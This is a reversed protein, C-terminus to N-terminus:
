QPSTHCFFFSITKGETQHFAENDTGIAATIAVHVSGEFCNFHLLVVWM